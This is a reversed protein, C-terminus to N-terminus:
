NQKFIQFFAPFRISAPFKLLGCISINNENAAQKLFGCTSVFNECATKKLLGDTSINNGSDNAFCGDTSLSIEVEGLVSPM